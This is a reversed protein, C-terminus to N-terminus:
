VEEEENDEVIVPNAFSEEPQDEPFKSNPIGM